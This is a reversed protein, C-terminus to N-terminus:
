KLTVNKFYIVIYRLLALLSKRGYSCRVYIRKNEQYYEYGSGVFEFNLESSIQQTTHRNSLEPDYEKCHEGSGDWGMNKVLSEKPMIVNLGEIPMLVSLTSDDCVIKKDICRQLFDIARNNGNKLVKVFTKISLHKQFYISSIGSTYREVRDKWTAYGWASFDVNQKFFTNREFKVPYFHRYGNIALVTHDEEFKELGKNMYVLFNPSFVNDDESAIYRDYKKLVDDRLMKLNGKGSYFYNTTRYVVNLSKFNMKGCSNLYEKIKDNGEIHEDKAPYDVAVYVDTRDAWTCNSLSEICDIFHQYRSVTTILVPAYKM